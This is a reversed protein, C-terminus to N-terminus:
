AARVHAAGIATWAGEGLWRGNSRVAPPDVTQWVPGFFEVDLLARGQAAVKVFRGHQDVTVGQISVQARM